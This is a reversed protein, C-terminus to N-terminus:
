GIVSGIVAMLPYIWFMDKDSASMVVVATDLAAPLFFILTSDLAALLLVGLPSLFLGFISVFFHHMGWRKSHVNPGLSTKSKTKFPHILDTPESNSHRTSYSCLALRM